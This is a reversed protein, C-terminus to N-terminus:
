YVIELGIDKCGKIFSDDIENDTIIKNIMKLDCVLSLATKGFKSSDALLVVQNAADIM